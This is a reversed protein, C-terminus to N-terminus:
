GNAVEREERMKRGEKMREVAAKVVAIMPGQCERCLAVKYPADREYPDGSHHLPITDTETDGCIACTTTM